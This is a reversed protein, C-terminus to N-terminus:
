RVIVIVKLALCKKSKKSVFNNSVFNNNTRKAMTVDFGAIKRNVVFITVTVTVPKSTVVVMTTFTVYKCKNQCM